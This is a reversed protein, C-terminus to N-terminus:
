SSIGDGGFVKIHVELLCACEVAMVILFNLSVVVM